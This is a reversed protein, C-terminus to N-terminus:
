DNWARTRSYYICQLFRVGNKLRRIVTHERFFQRKYFMGFGQPNRKLHFKFNKTYGDELYEGLYIIDRHFCAIKGADAIENWILLEPVFKEGKFVPFPHDLLAQKKFVYALDGQYYRAAATAHMYCFGPEDEAVEVGILRGDLRGRRFCMGLLAKDQAKDLSDYTKCIARPTLLDDSDVILIWNGSAARVGANIASQKGTNPQKVVVVEIVASKAFDCLLQETGDSSGDDVVVWEFHQNHQACLSDFLRGLTHARNYTCTLVTIM